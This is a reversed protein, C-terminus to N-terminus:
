IYKNYVISNIYKQMPLIAYLVSDSMQDTLDNFHSFSVINVNYESMYKSVYDKDTDMVAVNKGSLTNLDVIEDSLTSVVVFHDTYFLLDNGGLENKNTFKYTGSGNVQVNFTLKTDREMFNVFDYFVGVGSNSFIPLSGEVSVDIVNNLNSNIFSKESFSYGNKRSNLYMLLCLILVILVLVLGGILFYKKNKKM